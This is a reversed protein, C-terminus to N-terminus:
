SVKTPLIGDRSVNGSCSDALKTITAPSPLGRRIEALIKVFEDDAQLFISGHNNLIAFLIIFYEIM